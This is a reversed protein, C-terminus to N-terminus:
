HPLPAADNALVDPCARVSLSDGGGVALAADVAVRPARCCARGQGADGLGVGLDLGEAVGGLRCSAGVQQQGAVVTM